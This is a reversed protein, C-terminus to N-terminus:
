KPSVQKEWKDLIADYRDAQKEWREILKEMRESQADAREQQEATKKLQRETEAQQEDAKKAQAEYIELQKQYEENYATSSDDTNTCAIIMPFILSLLLAPLKMKEGSNFSIVDRRLPRM